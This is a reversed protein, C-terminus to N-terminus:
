LKLYKLMKNEIQDSLASNNFSEKEDGGTAYCFLFTKDVIRQRFDGRTDPNKCLMPQRCSAEAAVPNAVARGKETVFLEECCLPRTSAVGTRWWSSSM